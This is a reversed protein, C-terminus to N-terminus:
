EECMLASNIRPMFTSSSDKEYSTASVLQEKPLILDGDITDDQCMLIWAALANGDIWHCRRLIVLGALIWWSYCVDPLKEPRGNLGGPRCQRSNCFTDAHTM